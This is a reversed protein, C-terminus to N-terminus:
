PEIVTRFVLEEDVFKWGVEVGIVFFHLVAAEGFM